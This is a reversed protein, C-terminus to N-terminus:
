RWGSANDWWSDGWRRGRHTSSRSRGSDRGEDTRRGTDEVRRGRVAAPPQMQVPARAHWPVKMDVVNGDENCPEAYYVHTARQDRNWFTAVRVWMMTDPSTLCMSRTPVYVSVGEYDVDFRSVPGLITKDEPVCLRYSESNPVATRTRVYGKAQM